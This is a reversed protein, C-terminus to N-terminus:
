DVNSGEPELRVGYFFLFFRGPNRFTMPEGDRCHEPENQMKQRFIELWTCCGLKLGDVKNAPDQM